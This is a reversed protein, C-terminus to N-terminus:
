RQLAAREISSAFLPTEDKNHAIEESRVACLGSRM